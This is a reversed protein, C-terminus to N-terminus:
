VEKRIKGNELSIRREKYLRGVARKFAAKSLGTERFIVEPSAKETFPLVGAYSEIIEMLKASDADMQVYAKSRVTIDLKGDEKVGTVMASIVDGLRYLSLDEHRAIMASYKDDVAM